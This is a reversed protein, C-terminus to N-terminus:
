GFADGFRFRFHTTPNRIIQFRLEPFGSYIPEDISIDLDQRRLNRPITFSKRSDPAPTTLIFRRVGVVLLVYS